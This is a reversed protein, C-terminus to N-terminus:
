KLHRALQLPLFLVFDGEAGFSSVLAAGHSVLEGEVLSNAM